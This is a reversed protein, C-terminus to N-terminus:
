LQVAPVIVQSSDPNKNYMAADYAKNRMPKKSKWWHYAAAGGFVSFIAALASAGIYRLHSNSAAHSTPVVEDSYKNVAALSPSSSKGSNTTLPNITVDLGPGYPHETPSTFVDGFFNRVYSSSANVYDMLFFKRLTDVNLFSDGNHYPINGLAIYNEGGPFLFFKWKRDADQKNLSSFLIPNASTKLARAKDSFVSFSLEIEGYPAYIGAPDYDDNKVFPHKNGLSESFDPFFRAYSYVANQDLSELEIKEGFDLKQLWSSVNVYEVSTEMTTALKKIDGIYFCSFVKKKAYNKQSEAVLEDSDLGKKGFHNVITKSMLEPAFDTSLTICVSKDLWRSVRNSRGQEGPAGWGNKDALEQSQELMRSIERINEEKKGWPDSNFRASPSSAGWAIETSGAGVGSSFPALPGAFVP